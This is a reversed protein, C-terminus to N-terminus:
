FRRRLEHLAREGHIDPGQKRPHGPLQTRLTHFRSFRQYRPLLLPHLSTGRAPISACHFDASCFPIPFRVPDGLIDGGLPLLTSGRFYLDLLGDPRQTFRAWAHGRAGPFNIIPATLKPNANGIATFGSNTASVYWQIHIAYGSILDLDGSSLTLADSIQSNKLPFHFGMPGSIVGDDGHLVGQTVVFHATTSDIPTFQVTINGSLHSETLLVGGFFQNGCTGFRAEQEPTDGAFAVPVNSACDVVRIADGYFSRTHNLPLTEM